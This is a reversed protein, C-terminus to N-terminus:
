AAVVAIRHQINNAYGRPNWGPSVPPQMVGNMDTARAWVEYYGAEPLTVNARWRQWAYSNHPPELEAEAWTQGFDISVHLAKVDGNGAWAHGRVESPQGVPVTVGTQPFTILSKVPMVTLVVM